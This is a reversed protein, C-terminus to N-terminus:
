PPVVVVRSARGQVPCSELVPGDVYVQVTDGLRLDDLAAPALDGAPFRRYYRTRSDVTAWIGCAEISAPGAQVAITSATPGHRIAEIPGRVLPEGWSEELTSRGACAVLVGCVLLLVASATGRRTRRM